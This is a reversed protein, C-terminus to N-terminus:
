VHIMTEYYDVLFQAVKNPEGVRMEKLDVKFWGDQNGNTPNTEVFSIDFLPNTSRGLYDQFYTTSYPINPNQILDYFLRNNSRKDSSPLFLTTEYLM